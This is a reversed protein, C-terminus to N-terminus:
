EYELEPIHYHCIDKLDQYQVALDDNQSISKMALYILQQNCLCNTIKGRKSLTAVSKKVGNLIIIASKIEALYIAKDEILMNSDSNYAEAKKRLDYMVDTVTEEINQESNM